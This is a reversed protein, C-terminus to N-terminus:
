VTANDKVGTKTGIAGASILERIYEDSYGCLDRFVDQTNEGLAPPYELPRRGEYKFPNGLFELTAGTERHTVTEVMERLKAVPQTVAEEVNLVPAVPVRAEAFIKLWEGSDREAIRASILESLASANDFRAARTAFRPDEALEPMGLVRCFARWFETGTPSVALYRGDAARFAESPTTMPSRSGLPGPVVGSVFYNQAQWALLALQCDLLSVQVRSGRNETRGALASSTALALFAGGALDAIQYGVRSPPAGEQGTISMVGGLAQAILDYAPSRAYGDSDHLGILQGVCIRPNIERLREYDIGLRKPVDPAYSYIVADSVKVLDYFAAIGKEHKLDIVVSSKGRNVSLFFSSDGEFMYPPIARAPDGTPTEVKIVEAGLQSLLQGAFPGGLVWTLDLVRMSELV